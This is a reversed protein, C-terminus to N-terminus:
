KGQWIARALFPLLRRSVFRGVEKADTTSQSHETQDRSRKALFLRFLGLFSLGASCLLYCVATYKAELSSLDAAINQEFWWHYCCPFCAKLVVQESPIFIHDFISRM